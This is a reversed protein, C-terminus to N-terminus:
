RHTWVWWSERPCHGPQSPMILETILNPTRTDCDGNDWATHRFLPGWGWVENVTFDKVKNRLRRGTSGLTFFSSIMLLTFADCEKRKKQWCTIWTLAWHDLQTQTRPFTWSLITRTEAGTILQLRDKFHVHGERATWHINRAWSGCM